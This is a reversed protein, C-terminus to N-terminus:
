SIFSSFLVWFHNNSPFYLQGWFFDGSHGLISKLGNLSKKKKKKGKKRKSMKKEEHGIKPGGGGKKKKKEKKRNGRGVM